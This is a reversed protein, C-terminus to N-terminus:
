AGGDVAIDKAPDWAEGVFFHTEPIITDEVHRNQECLMIYACAGYQYCNDHCMPWLNRQYEEQLDNACAFFSVMWQELDRASFFQPSRLFDIKPEGYSNDKKSKYCSLHHLGIMAGEPPEELRQTAAWTYGIIQASRHLRQAQTAIPQSTTKHELIWYRDNLYIEGDIVGTFNFPALRPFLVRFDPVGPIENPQQAMPIKFPTETQIIKM